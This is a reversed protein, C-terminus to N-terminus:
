TMPRSSAMPMQDDGGHVIHRPAASPAALLAEALFAPRLDLGALAARHFWRFELRVRRPAEGNLGASTDFREFAASKDALWPSGDPLTVPFYLELGHQPRGRYQYLNEAM